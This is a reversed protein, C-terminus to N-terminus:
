PLEVPGYGTAAPFSGLVRLVEVHSRLAALGAAVPEDNLHGELDAFFMYQGLGRRRPRSEIRTLNVGRRSLESLCAVLWGPANSGAGWFVIATKFRARGPERAGPGAGAAGQAESRPGLWVFRTDNDPEDQVDAALVRCGYLEAALRNGLAAWRGGHEAVTRVAEATSSAPRLAATPLHARLWARCQGSPQPHSVVVEIEELALSASAILCQSIPHVLEALIAVQEAALALTDLTATVAGELSNEIPVLARHLEGDRVGLVADQVTPVAVLEFARGTAARALAEHSFTGPPGLYGARVTEGPM